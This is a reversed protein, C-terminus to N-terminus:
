CYQVLDPRGNEICANQRHIIANQAFEKAESWTEWPLWAVPLPLCFFQESKDRLYELREIEEDSAKKDGRDIDYLENMAINHILEFNHQNAYTNFPYLKKVSIVKYGKARCAERNATVKEKSRPYCYKDTWGGDEAPAQYHFEWRDEKKYYDM